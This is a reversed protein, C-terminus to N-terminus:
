YCILQIGDDQRAPWWDCQVGFMDDHLVDIYHNIGLSVCCYSCVGKPGTPSGAFPDTAKQNRLNKFQRRPAEKGCLARCPCRRPARRIRPRPQQYFIPSLFKKSTGTRQSVKGIRMPEPFDKQTAGARHQRNSQGQRGPQDNSIM